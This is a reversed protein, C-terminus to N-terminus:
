YQDGYCGGVSAAMNRRDANEGQLKFRWEPQLSNRTTETEGGLVRGSSRDRLRTSDGLEGNAHSFKTLVRSVRGRMLRQVKVEEEATTEHWETAKEYDSWCFL